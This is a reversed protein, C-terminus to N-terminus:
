AFTMFIIPARIGPATAIRLLRRGRGRSRRCRRRRRLFDTPAHGRQRLPARGVYALAPAHVVQVLREVLQPALHGRERVLLAQGPDLREPQGDRVDAEHGLQELRRRRRQRAAVRNLRGGDAAAAARVPREDLV